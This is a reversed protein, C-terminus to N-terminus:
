LIGTINKTLHFKNYVKFCLCKVKMVIQAMAHAHFFRSKAYELVFTCIMQARYSCLQDTGKNKSLM